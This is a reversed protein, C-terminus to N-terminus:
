GHLVKSKKPAILPITPYGDALCYQSVFYNFGSLPPYCERAAVDWADNSGPYDAQWAKIAQGFIAKRVKQPDSDRNTPVFYGRMYNRGKWISAVLTKYIQGSADLSLLPGSVRAM